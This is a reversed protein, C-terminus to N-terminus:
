GQIGRAFIKDTYADPVIKSLVLSLTPARYMAYAELKKLVYAALKQDEGVIGIILGEDTQDLRQLLGDTALLRDLAKFPDGGVKTLLKRGEDGFEKRLGIARRQTRLAM